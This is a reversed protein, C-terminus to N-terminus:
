WIFIYKSSNSQQLLLILTMKKNTIAGLIFINLQFILPVQLLSGTLIKNSGQCKVGLLSGSRIRDSSTTYM